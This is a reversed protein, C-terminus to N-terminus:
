SLLTFLNINKQPWSAHREFIHYIISVNLYPFNMINEGVENGPDRMKGGGGWEGQSATLYSVMPVLNYKWRSYMQNFNSEKSCTDIFIKLGSASWEM